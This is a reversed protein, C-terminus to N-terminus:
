DARRRFPFTWGRPIQTIIAFNEVGGSGALFDLWNSYLNFHEGLESDRWIPFHSRFYDQPLICLTQQTPLANEQNNAKVWGSHVAKTRHLQSLPINAFIPLRVISTSRLTGKYNENSGQTLCRNRHYSYHLPKSRTEKLGM